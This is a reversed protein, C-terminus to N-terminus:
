QINPVVKAETFHHDPNINPPCDSTCFFLFAAHTPKKVPELQINLCQINNHLKTRRLHLLHHGKVGAFPAMCLM